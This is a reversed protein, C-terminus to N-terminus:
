SYFQRVAILLEDLECDLEAFSPNVRLQNPSVFRTSACNYCLGRDNVYRFQRCARCVKMPGM